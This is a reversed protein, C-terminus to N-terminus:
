ILMVKKSFKLINTVNVWCVVPSKPYPQTNPVNINM